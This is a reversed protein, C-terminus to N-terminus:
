FQLFSPPPPEIGEPPPGIWIRGDEVEIPFATAGTPAPGDLREGTSVRFMSGHWPCVVVDGKQYGEDLPGGAHPCRSWLAHFDNGVRFLAIPYGHAQVALPAQESVEDVGAVDWWEEEDDDADAAM